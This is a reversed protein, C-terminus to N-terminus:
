GPFQTRLNFFGGSPVPTGEGNSEQQRTDALEAALIQQIKELEHLVEATSLGVHRAIQESCGPCSYVVSSDAAAAYPARLEGARGAWSCAPCAVPSERFDIGSLEILDGSLRGSDGKIEKNIGNMGKGTVVDARKIRTAYQWV